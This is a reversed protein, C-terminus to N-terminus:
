ETMLALTSKPENKNIVAEKHRQFFSSARKVDQKCVMTPAIREVGKGLRSTSHAQGEM